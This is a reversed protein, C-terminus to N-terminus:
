IVILDRGGNLMWTYYYFKHRMFSGGSFSSSKISLAHHTKYTEYNMILYERSFNLLSRLIPTCQVLAKFVSSWFHISKISFPFQQFLFFSLSRYFPFLLHTSAPKSYQFINGKSAYFITIVMFHKANKDSSNTQAFSFLYLWTQTIREIYTYQIPVYLKLSIKAYHCWPLDCSYVDMERAYKM